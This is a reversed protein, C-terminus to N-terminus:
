KITPIEIEPNGKLAKIINELENHYKEDSSCDIGKRGDIFDPTSTEFTGKRLIPIFKTTEQNHYIENSIISGEYAAGGINSEAKEKYKPTLICLVKVSERITKRMFNVLNAGYELYRDIQADFGNERLDKALTQVWQMYPADDMEWAYSIMVIPYTEQKYKINQEKIPHTTVVPEIKNTPDELLEFIDTDRSDSKHLMQSQRQNIKASLDKLFMPVDADTVSIFLDKYCKIRSTSLEKQRLEDMYEGYLLPLPLHGLFPKITDYFLTGEVYLPAKEDEKNPGILPWLRNFVDKKDVGEEYIIRDFSISISVDEGSNVIDAGNETLALFNHEKLLLYDNYILAEVFFYLINIKSRTMEKEASCQLTNLMFGQGAKNIGFRKFLNFIYDIYYKM